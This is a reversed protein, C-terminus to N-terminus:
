HGAAATASWPLAAQEDFRKALTDFDLAGASSFISADPLFTLATGRMRGGGALADETTMEQTIQGRAFAMTHRRGNRAVEIQLRESLANVVSVGVGHLGASVKYGSDDGGFKGGAHLM